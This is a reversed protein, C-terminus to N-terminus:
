PRRTVPNLATLRVTSQVHKQLSLRVDLALNLTQLKILGSFGIGARYDNLRQRLPDLDDVPLGLAAVERWLKDAEQDRQDQQKPHKM